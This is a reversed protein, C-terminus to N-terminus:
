KGTKGFIKIRLPKSHAIEIQDLVENLLIGYTESQCVTEPFNYEYIIYKLFKELGWM